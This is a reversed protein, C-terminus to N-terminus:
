SRIGQHVGGSKVLFFGDFVYAGHEYRHGENAVIEVRVHEGRPMYIVFQGDKDAEASLKAGEPSKDVQVKLGVVKDLSGTVFREFAFYNKATIKGKLVVIERQAAAASALSLLM